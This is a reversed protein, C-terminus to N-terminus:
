LDLVEVALLSLPELVERGLRFLSSMVFFERLLVPRRFLGFGLGLLLLKKLFRLSSAGGDRFGISGM